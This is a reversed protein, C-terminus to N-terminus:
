CTQDRNVHVIVVNGMEVPVIGEDNKHLSVFNNLILHHDETREQNSTMLITSYVFHNLMSRQLNTLRDPIHGDKFV